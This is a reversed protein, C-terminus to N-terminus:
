DPLAFRGRRSVVLQEHELAKLQRSVRSAAFGALETHLVDATMASRSLARLIAGRIQRDSDAFPSQKRYHKSNAINNGKTRKLHAGYDMLAWYWERVHHTPLTRSVLKRLEADSVGTKDTYFHHILASRINTELM